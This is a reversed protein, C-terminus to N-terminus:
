IAKIIINEYANFTSLCRTVKPRVFFLLKVMIQKKKNTELYKYRNLRPAAFSVQTTTDQEFCTVRM